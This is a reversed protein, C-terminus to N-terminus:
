SSSIKLELENATGLLLNPIEEEFWQGKLRHTPGSVSIAGIVEDRPDHAPVGVARLGNIYELLNYSVGRERITELEEFLAEEDTITNETFSELSRKDYIERVRETAFGSPFAKGAATAHLSHYKGIGSVTQVANVDTERHVFMSRVYEKVMFESREDTEAALEVIKPKAVRYIKKRERVYCDLRLFRTSLYYEYDEKVVYEKDALTSLHRYVTSNVFDLEEATTTLRAGDLERLAELIDFVM